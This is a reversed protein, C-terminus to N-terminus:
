QPSPSISLAPYCYFLSPYNYLPLFQKYLFFPICITDDGMGEGGGGGGGWNEWVILIQMMGVAQLKSEASAVSILSPTALKTFKLDPCNQSVLYAHKKSVLSISCCSDVPLPIKFRHTLPYWHISSIGM